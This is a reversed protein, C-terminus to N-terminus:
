SLRRNNATLWTEAIIAAALAHDPRSCGSRNRAEFTSLREDTYGIKLKYRQHLRAGFKRSAISMESESDDMNVPLGVVLETPDWKRILDDLEEWNPIGKKAHITKLPSTTGSVVEAVAIGIFRIGFDFVLAPM